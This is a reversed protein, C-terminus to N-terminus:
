APTASPQCTQWGPCRVCGWPPGDAANSSLDIRLGDRVRAYHWFAPARVVRPIPHLRTPLSGVTGVTPTRGLGRKEPINGKHKWPIGPVTTTRRTQQPFRSAASGSDSLPARTRQRSRRPSRPLVFTVDDEREGEQCGQRDVLTV